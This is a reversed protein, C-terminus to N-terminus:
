IKPFNRFSDLFVNEADQKANGIRNKRKAWRRFVWSCWTNLFINKTKNQPYNPTWLHLNPFNVELYHKQRRSFLNM